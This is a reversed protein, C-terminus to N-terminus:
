RTEGHQTPTDTDSFQDDGDEEETLDAMDVHVWARVWVGHEGTSAAEDQDVELDNKPWTWGNQTRETALELAKQELPSLTPAAELKAVETKAADIAKQMEPDDLPACCFQAHRILEKFIQVQM